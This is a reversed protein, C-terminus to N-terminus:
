AIRQQIYTTVPGWSMSVITVKTVTFASSVLRKSTTIVITGANTESLRATLQEWTPGFFATANIFILTADSFDAQLFNDQIFRVRRATDHYQPSRALWKKRECAANHLPSFLEIGCSKQVDFVMACALVAKGVGSGLDYFLTKSNPKTLSLLAIFSVFDIEGYTYEMADSTSRAERSLAFGDTNEFLQRYYALHEQLRLGKCFRKLRIHRRWRPYSLAVLVTIVLILLIPM